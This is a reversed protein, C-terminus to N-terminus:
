GVNGERMKGFQIDTSVVEECLDDVRQGEGRESIECYVDFRAVGYFFVDDTEDHARMVWM